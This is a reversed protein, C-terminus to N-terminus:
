ICTCRYREILLKPSARFAATSPKVVVMIRMSQTPQIPRTSQATYPSQSGIAPCWILFASWNSGSSTSWTAPSMGQRGPSKMAPTKEPDSLVILLPKFERAAIPKLSKRGDFVRALIPSLQCANAVFSIARPNPHTPYPRVKTILTIGEMSSTPMKIVPTTAPGVTPSNMAPMNRGHTSERPASIPKIPEEKIVPQIATPLKMYRLLRALKEASGAGLEVIRQGGEQPRSSSMISSSKLSLYSPSRACYSSLLKDM